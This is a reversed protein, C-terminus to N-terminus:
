DSKTTSPRIGCREPSIGVVIDVIRTEVIRTDVIRTDVVRTDLTDPGRVGSPRRLFCQERPIWPCPLLLPRSANGDGERRPNHETPSLSLHDQPTLILSETTEM